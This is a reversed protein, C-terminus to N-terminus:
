RNLFARLMNNYLDRVDDPIIDMQHLFFAVRSSKKEKEEINMGGEANDGEGDAGAEEANDGEGDAGAEEIGGEKEDGVEPAGIIWDRFKNYFLDDAVMTITNALTFYYQIVFFIVPM